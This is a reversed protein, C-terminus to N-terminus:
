AARLRAVIEGLPRALGTAIDELTRSLAVQRARLAENEAALEANRRRLDALELELASAAGVMEGLVGVVERGDALWRMLRRDPGYRRVVLVHSPGHAPQAGEPRRREGRRREVAVPEVRRRRDGQRRDLVAEVKEDLLFLRRVRELLDPRDRAVVALYGGGNAPVPTPHPADRWPALAGAVASRRRVLTQVALYHWLKGM